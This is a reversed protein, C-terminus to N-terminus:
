GFVFLIFLTFSLSPLKLFHTGLLIILYISRGPFQIYFLIANNFYFRAVGNYSSANEIMDRTYMKIIQLTFMLFFYLIQSLFSHVNINQLNAQYLFQFFRVIHDHNFFLNLISVFYFLSHLFSGAMLWQRNPFFFCLLGFAPAFGIFPLFGLTILNPNLALNLVSILYVHVHVYSWCWTMHSFFYNGFYIFVQSAAVSPIYFHTFFQTFTLGDDGLVSELLLLSTFPYAVLFFGMNYTITFNGTCTLDLHMLFLLHFGAFIMM